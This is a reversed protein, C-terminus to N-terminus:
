RNGSEIAPHASSGCCSMQPAQRRPGRLILLHELGGLRYVSYLFLLRFGYAVAMGAVFVVAITLPISM